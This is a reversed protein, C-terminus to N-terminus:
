RGKDHSLINSKQFLVAGIGFVAVFSGILYAPAGAPSFGEPSAASSRLLMSYRPWLAPHDWFAACIMLVTNMLEGALPSALVSCVAQLEALVCLTLFVTGILNVPVAGIQCVGYRVAGLAAICLLGVLLYAACWFVVLFTLRGWWGLRSGAQLLRSTGMGRMMRYPFLACSHVCFFVLVFWTVPLTFPVGSGHLLPHNGAFVFVVHDSLAPISQMDAAPGLSTQYAMAAAIFLLAGLGLGWRADRCSLVIDRSIVAWRSRLSKKM